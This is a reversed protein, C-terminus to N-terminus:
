GQLYLSTLSALYPSLPDQSCVPPSSGDPHAVRILQTACYLLGQWQATSPPAADPNIEQQMAQTSFQSVLLAITFGYLPQPSYHCLASIMQSAARRTSAESSALVPLYVQILRKVESDEMYYILHACISDMATGMSTWLMSDASNAMKEFAELLRTVFNRGRNM